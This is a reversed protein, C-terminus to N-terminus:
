FSIRACKIFFDLFKKYKKIKKVSVKVCKM